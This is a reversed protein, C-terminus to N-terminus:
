EAHKYVWLGTIPEFQFLKPDHTLGKEKLERAKRRQCEEVVTKEETAKMQDSAVIAETVRQWLSLNKDIVLILSYNNHWLSENGNQNTAKKINSLFSTGLYGDKLLARIPKGYYILKRFLIFMSLSSFQMTKQCDPKVGTHKDTIVISSDWHGDITAM